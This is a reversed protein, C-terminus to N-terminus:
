KHLLYFIDIRIVNCNYPASIDIGAFSFLHGFGANVDKRDVIHIDQAHRFDHSPGDLDSGVSCVPDM